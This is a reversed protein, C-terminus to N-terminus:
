SAPEGARRPQLSLAAREGAAESEQPEGARRPQDLAVEEEAADPEGERSPQMECEIPLDDEESPEGLRHPQSDGTLAAKPATASRPSFAEYLSDTLAAVVLPEAAGFGSNEVFDAQTEWWDEALQARGVVSGLISPGHAAVPEASTDDRLRGQGPESEQIPHEPNM